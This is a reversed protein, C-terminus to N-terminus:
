QWQLTRVIKEFTPFNKADLTPPCTFTVIYSDKGRLILYQTTMSKVAQNNAGTLTLTYRLEEAEGVPLQIRRRNIPKSVASQSELQQLNLTVFYDLAYVQTHTTRIVNVNTLAGGVSASPAGDVAYFRIGSALLQKSQAEMAQGFQPNKQKMTQITQQLTAADLEQFVWTAPLAMAFKDAAVAYVKWGAELTPPPVARTPANAPVNAPARTGAPTRKPLLADGRALWEQAQAQSGGVDFFILAAPAGCCFVLMNLGLLLQVINKQEKTMRGGM